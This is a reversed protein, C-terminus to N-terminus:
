EAQVGVLDTIKATAGCSEEPGQSESSTMFLIRLPGHKIWGPLNVIDGHPSVEPTLQLKKLSAEATNVYYKRDLEVSDSITEFPPHASGHLSIVVSQKTQTVSTPTLFLSDGDIQGRTKFQHEDRSESTGGYIVGWSKPVIFQDFSDHQPNSALLYTTRDLTSGLSVTARIEVKRIGRDHFATKIKERTKRSSSKSEDILARVQAKLCKDSKLDGDIKFEVGYEAEISALKKEFSGALAMTSMLVTSLAAFQFLKM